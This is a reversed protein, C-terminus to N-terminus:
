SMLTLCKKVAERDDFHLIKNKIIQYNEHGKGAVLVVDDKKALELAKKIAKFRDPQVSYNSKKIGAKISRIITLPNESRPNDNTIIVYDSFRCAINGMKPRKNKDRDGGCGFVTLIRGRSVERLATLVNFLADPTHAYDVFVSYGRHSNLKELRGPIITFEEVAKKVKDFDLGEHKAWALVALVNYLNHKGTLRINFEAEKKPGSFIFKTGSIGMRINKAYFDAHGDLGYTVTKVHTMKKLRKGYSDDINIVAFSGGKLGAFLKTKAKFYEEMSHHYDLHDQTLNTFIASSFDIGCARDQDLAHSSVEMVAYKCKADLMKRLLPQLDEPGPTTNKSPFVQNKFRYNITGIVAPNSGSKKLIAEILYTITTKGNTGTVGVVKLKSSPNHYFEACLKAFAFRADVVPIFVIGPSLSRKLKLAGEFVVAKAGNKVAEGIFKNGDVKTGKIAVFVFNDKIKKSNCSIGKILGTLKM